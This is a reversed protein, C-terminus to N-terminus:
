LGAQKMISKLTKPLIDGTHKPVTTKGPKTPHKLQMHSGNTSVERWGDRHLIQLVERVTVQAGGEESENYAYSIRIDLAKRL